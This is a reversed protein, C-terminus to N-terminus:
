SMRWRRWAILSFSSLLPMKVSHLPLHDAKVADVMEFSAPPTRALREARLMRGGEVSCKALATQELSYAATFALTIRHCNQDSPSSSVALFSRFLFDDKRNMQTDPSGVHQSKQLEGRKRRGRGGKHTVRTWHDLAPAQWLIAPQAIRSELCGLESRYISRKKGRTRQATLGNDIFM